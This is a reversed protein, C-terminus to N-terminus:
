AVEAGAAEDPGAAAAAPGPAGAAAARLTRRWERLGMVCMTAFIVYLASTLYLGRWAYLGIYVADATIWLYWNELFKRTLLYQAGLSLSTTLADLFPASDDISRLYVTMGATAAAVALGVLAAELVGSHRVRLRSRLEGGHLWWYWGLFGLVIYVVQLGSDAFLRVRLFVVLFLASNAIGLPWNWISALVTLWVCWAGSVFGLTEVVGFPAWGTASLAVLGASGAGAVLYAASRRGM